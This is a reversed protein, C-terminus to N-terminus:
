FHEERINEQLDPFAVGHASMDSELGFESLQKVTIGLDFVKTDRVSESGGPSLMM